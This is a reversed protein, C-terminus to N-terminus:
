TTFKCHINLFFAAIQPDIGHLLVINGTIKDQAAMKEIPDSGTFLVMKVRKIFKKSHDCSIHMDHNFVLVKEKGAPIDADNGGIRWMKYIFVFVRKADTKAKGIGTGPIEAVGAIKGPKLAAISFQFRNKDRFIGANILVIETNSGTDQFAIMGVIYDIFKKKIRDVLNRIRDEM